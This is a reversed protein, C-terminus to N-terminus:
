AQSALALLADISASLSKRQSAIELASMAAFAVCWCFLRQADAGTAAAM